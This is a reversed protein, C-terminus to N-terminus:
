YGVSNSLSPIPPRQPNRSDYASGSPHSRSPYYPSTLTPPRTYPEGNTLTAMTTTNAGCGRRASAGPGYGYNEPPSNETRMDSPASLTGSSATTSPNGFGSSSANSDVSHSAVISQPTSKPSQSTAVYGFGMDPGESVSDSRGTGSTDHINGFRNEGSYSDGSSWAAGLRYTASNLGQHDAMSDNAALTGPYSRTSAPDPLIRDSSVPGASIMSSVSPYNSSIECSTPTGICSNTSPTLPTSSGGDSYSHGQHRIGSTSLWSKPSATSPYFANVSNPLMFAPSVANSVNYYASNEDQGLSFQNRNLVQAPTQGYYDYSTPGQSYPEATTHYPSFTYSG